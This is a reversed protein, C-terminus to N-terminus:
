FNLYNHCEHPFIHRLRIWFYRSFFVRATAAAHLLSAIAPVSSICTSDKVFTDVKAGNCLHRHFPSRNIGFTFIPSNRPLPPARLRISFQAFNLSLSIIPISSFWNPRFPMTFRFHSCFSLTLSWSPRRRRCVFLSASDSIFYIHYIYHVRISDDLRVAVRVFSKM